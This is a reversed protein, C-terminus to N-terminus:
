QTRRQKEREAQSLRLYSPTLAAATEGMDGKNYRMSAAFAVGAARQYKFIEPFVCFKIEPKDSFWSAALDAGDGLFLVTGDFAALAERLEALKRPADPLLRKLEGNESRFLASYVQMCRADMVPCILYADLAAGCAMAELTSIGYVPKGTGFALGKVASVGIRVGTFSGPGKSVAFADVDGVAVGANQLCSDVVEMLTESHTLGVNLFSESILKGDRVLAAGASVASTEIGLILM